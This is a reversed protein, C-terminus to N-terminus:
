CKSSFRRSRSLLFSIEGLFVYEAIVRIRDEVSLLGTRMAEGLKKVREPQYLTRYFGSQGSNLKFLGVDNLFIETERTDLLIGKCGTSTILGLSVPYVTENEENTLDKSQLFRDRRVM